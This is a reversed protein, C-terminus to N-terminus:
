AYDYLELIDEGIVECVAAKTKDDLTTEIKIYKNKDEATFRSSMSVKSINGEYPACECNFHRAMDKLYFSPMSLLNEYKIHYINQHRMQEKWFLAHERYIKAFMLPDHEKDYLAFRIMDARKRTVSDIWTFPHKTILVSNTERLRAIWYDYTEIVFKGQHQKVAARKTEIDYPIDFAHKWVGNHEYALKLNVDKFSKEILSELYNTGSRQLGFVTWDM